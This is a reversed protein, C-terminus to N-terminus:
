FFHDWGKEILEETNYILLGEKIFEIGYLNEGKVGLYYGLAIGDGKLIFIFDMISDLKLNLLENTSKSFYNKWVKEFQWTNSYFGDTIVKKTESNIMYSESLLFEQEQDYEFELNSLFLPLNCIEEKTISDQTYHLVFIHLLEIDKRKSLKKNYKKIQKQVRKNLAEVDSHFASDRQILSFPYSIDQSHLNSFFLICVFFVFLRINM